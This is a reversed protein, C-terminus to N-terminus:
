RSTRPRDAAAFEREEHDLKKKNFAAYHSKQLRVGLKRCEEETVKFVYDTHSSPRELVTKIGLERATRLTELAGSTWCHVIDIHDKEHIRPLTRAVIRDHLAAARRIGVLGLPLKLGGFRLTERQYHLDKIPDLMAGCFLTVQVGLNVLGAVQYYGATPVGGRLMLWMPFSYLVRLVSM